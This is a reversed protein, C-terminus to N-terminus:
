GCCGCRAASGSPPPSRGARAASPRGHPIGDRRASAFRPTTPWSFRVEEGGYADGKPNGEQGYKQAWRTELTLVAGVNLKDRRHQLRAEIWDGFAKAKLIVGVRDGPAPAGGHDALRAAMTTGPM